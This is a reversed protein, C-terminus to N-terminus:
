KSHESCKTDHHRSLRRTCNSGGEDYCKMCKSNEAYKSAATRLMVRHIHRNSRTFLYNSHVSSYKTYRSCEPREARREDSRKSYVACM